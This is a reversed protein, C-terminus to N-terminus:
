LQKTCGHKSKSCHLFVVWPIVTLWVTKPDMLPFFNIRCDFMLSFATNSKTLKWPLMLSSMSSDSHQSCPVSGLSNKRPSLRPIQVSMAFSSTNIERESIFTNSKLPAFAPKRANYYARFTVPVDRHSKNYIIHIQPGSLSIRIKFCLRHTAGIRRKERRQLARFVEAGPTALFPSSSFRHVFM